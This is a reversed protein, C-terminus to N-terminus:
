LNGEDRRMVNLVRAHAGVAFNSVRGFDGGEYGFIKGVTRMIDFDAVIAGVTPVIKERWVFFFLDSAITYHHCLDTDALGREAGQLCHWTYYRENLYIHEYRETPSYTYEVRKGVLESGPLHRATERTFSTNVSGQLFTCSVGTLEDGAALRDMLSRHAESEDPLRAVLATVIGRNLDLVLSVTTARELHRIFDVFYIGERAKTAVYAEQAERGQSTGGAIVWRLRSDSEFRHEVTQGNELHLEFTRGALDGTSRPKNNDAAFARALEGATIWRPADVM